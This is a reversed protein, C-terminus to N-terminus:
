FSFSILSGFSDLDFHFSVDRSCIIRLYIFSVHCVEICFCRKAAMQLLAERPSLRHVSTPEDAADSM